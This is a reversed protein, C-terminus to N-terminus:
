LVFVKGGDFPVLLSADKVRQSDGVYGRPNCIIRSHRGQIDFCYHLHGHIHTVIAPHSLLHTVDSAEMAAYVEPYEDNCDQRNFLSEMTYPMHTMVHVRADPGVKDLFTSLAAEAERYSSIIDRITLRRGQVKIEKFDTFRYVGPMLQESVYYAGWAPLSKLSWWGTGGWLYSGDELVVSENNLLQVNTLGLEAILAKVKSPYSSLSMGYYDHNGLVIYIHKYKASLDKLWSYEGYRLFKLGEFLDGALLLTDATVEPFWLVSRLWDPSLRSLAQKTIHPLKPDLDFNLHIDSVIQVSVSM